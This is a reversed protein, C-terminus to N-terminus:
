FFIMSDYILIDPVPPDPYHFFHVRIDPDIMSDYILIDPVPPDPYHFFHVRIDPDPVM